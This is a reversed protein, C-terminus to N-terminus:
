RCRLGARFDLVGHIRSRMRATAQELYTMVQRQDADVGEGLEGFLTTLGREITTMPQLLDHAAAFAFRRAENAEAHVSQERAKLRTIDLHVGLMRLPEGKSNWEVVRGRCIVWVISGDKHFYRVELDYPTKGRSAVHAEFAAMAVPLDEPHILRMWTDPKNELEDDRYGFMAKFRPSM